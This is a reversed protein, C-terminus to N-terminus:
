RLAHCFRSLPLASMWTQHCRVAALSRHLGHLPSAASPAFLVRLLVALCDAHAQGAAWLLPPGADSPADVPAGAQLLLEVLRPSGSAAAHHLSEADGAGRARPAAGARLLQEAADAFGGRAALLLPTEGEADADDFPVHLRDILHSVMATQGRLAAFHLATRRNGDRVGAATAPLAEASELETAAAEFAPIDGSAAAQLM